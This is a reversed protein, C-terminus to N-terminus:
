AGRTLYRGLKDGPDKLDTALTKAGEDVFLRAIASGIGTATGTVIAIKGDPWGTM